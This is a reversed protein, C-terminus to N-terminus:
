AWVPPAERERAEVRVTASRVAFGPVFRSFQSRHDAVFRYAREVAGPARQLLRTLPAAGPLYGAVVALGRGGSSVRGDAEVLHWSALREAVPMAALWRDGVPGVIPAPWLRRGRDWRLLLGLTWRCFGCDDDYLV